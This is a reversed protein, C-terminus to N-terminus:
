NLVYLLKKSDKLDKGLNNVPEQGAKALHYNLWRKLIEEPPLKMLDALEEGDKLLRFIENCDKLNIAAVAILRVIQWIVALMLNPTKDLFSQADIGIIKILGRCGAFFMDLNERVKYINLNAGKNVVRFDIRDEEIKNLLHLGLIGDACADFLDANDPNIPLREAIEPIDALEKTIARAFTSVEEDLYVSV